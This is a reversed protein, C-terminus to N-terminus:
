VQKASDREDKLRQAEEQLQQAKETIAKREDRFDEETYLGKRHSRRIKVMRHALTKLQKQIRELQEQRFKDIEERHEAWLNPPTKHPSPEERAPAM